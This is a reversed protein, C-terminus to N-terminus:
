FIKACVQESALHLVRGLEQPFGEYPTTELSCEAFSHISTMTTPPVSGTTSNEEYPNPGKRGNGHNHSSNFVTLAYLVANRALTVSMKRVVLGAERRAYLREKM